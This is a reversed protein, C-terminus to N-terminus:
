APALESVLQNLIGEYVSNGNKATKIWLSISTLLDSSDEKPISLLKNGNLLVERTRGDFVIIGADIAKKITSKVETDPDKIIQLFKDPYTKAFDSLQGKLFEPDTETWNQSAAFQKVKVEDEMTESVVRLAERLTELKGIKQTVEEKYNVVKFLPKVSKDRHPNSENENLLWFVEYLDEDEIKGQMLSFKGRFIDDYMGALFPKYSTANGNVDFGTPVGISVTAGKGENAFPDRIRAYTPIQTKGYLIPNKERADRDFDNNKHGNLMQFLVEGNMPPISERLKQSINNLNKYELM